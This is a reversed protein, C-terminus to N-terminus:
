GTRRLTHKTHKTHQRRALHNVRDATTTHAASTRVCTDRDGETVSFRGLPLHDPRHKSGTVPLNVDDKEAVPRWPTDQGLETASATTSNFAYRDSQM